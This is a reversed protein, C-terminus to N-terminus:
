IQSLCQTSKEFEPFYGLNAHQFLLVRFASTENVESLRPHVPNGVLIKMGLKTEHGDNVMTYVSHRNIQLSTHVLDWCCRNNTCDSCEKSQPM